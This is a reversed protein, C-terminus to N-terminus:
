AAKALCLLYYLILRLIEYLYMYMYTIAKYRHILLSKKLLQALTRCKRLSKGFVLSSRM